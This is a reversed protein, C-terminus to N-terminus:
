SLKAVRVKKVISCFFVWDSMCPGANREGKKLFFCNIQLVRQWPTSAAALLEHTAAHFPVNWSGLM